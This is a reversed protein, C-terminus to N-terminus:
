GVLESKGGTLRSIAEDIEARRRRMIDSVPFGKEQFAIFEQKVKEGKVAWRVLGAGFTEGDEFLDAVAEPIATPIIKPAIPAIPKVVPTPERSELAEQAREMREIVGVTIGSYQYAAVAGPAVDEVVSDIQRLYNRQVKAVQFVSAAIAELGIKEAGTTNEAAELIHQQVDGARKGMLLMEMRLEFLENPIGTM